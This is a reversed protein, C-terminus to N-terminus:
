SGYGRRMTWIEPCGRPRLEDIVEFGHGRYWAVNDAKQTELYSCLGERDARELVPALLSSGAGRRQWAPDSGIVALYWHPEAIRAHGQDIARYMRMGAFM